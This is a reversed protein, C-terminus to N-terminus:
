PTPFFPAGFIRPGWVVGMYLYYLAAIVVVVLCIFMGGFIKAKRNYQAAM